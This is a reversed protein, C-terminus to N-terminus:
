WYPVPKLTDLTFNINPQSIGSSDSTADSVASTAATPGGWTWGDDIAPGQHYFSTSDTFSRGIPAGGLRVSSEPLSTGTGNPGDFVELTLEYIGFASGCAPEGAPGTSNATLVLLSYQGEVACNLTVSPCYYGCVPGVTCPVEDDGFGILSSGLFLHAIPDLPTDTADSVLVTDVSFTVSGGAPCHFTWVDVLVDSGSGTQPPLDEMRVLETANITTAYTAFVVLVLAAASKMM